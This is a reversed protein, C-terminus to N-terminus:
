GPYAPASDGVVPERVVRTWLETGGPTQWITGAAVTLLPLNPAAATAAPPGPLGSTPVLRGPAVGDTGVSYLASNQEGARVLVILGIADSWSADSVPGDPVTLERLGDVRVAGNQRVVVGVLLRRRSEAGAVLAVRAGDRSLRLATVPGLRDLAPVAVRVPRGSVPVLVVERGDRVTWVEDSSAGWSPPTLTGATLVSRLPGRTRGVRLAVRGGPRSAVVAMSRQDTSVGVSSVAYAGRGAPGAVASGTTTRVRGGRVFYGPTALPLGDPDFGRWDALRQLPQPSGRPQAPQGNYVVEVGGVGVQDLTWVLQAYAGRQLAPDSDGPGTLYVQVRDSEQVVNSQLTVDALDSRVADQLWPSPGKELAGVLVSPLADQAAALWRVDPVVRTRTSDLFYVNYPRYASYYFTTFQVLVGPPPNDIRWQGDVQELRFTHSYPKSEALYSGAPDVRGRQQAKLQVEAGGRLVNLYVTQDELVTVGGADNWSEDGSPTLYARARAHRREHSGGVALFDRLIETPQQGPQPTIADYRPDVSDPAPTAAVSDGIVRPPSSSPISACGAAVACALVAGLMPLVRRTM